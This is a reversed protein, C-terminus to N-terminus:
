KSRAFGIFSLVNCASFFEYMNSLRFYQCSGDISVCICKVLKGLEIVSHFFVITMEFRINVSLAVFELLTVLHGNVRSPMLRYFNCSNM